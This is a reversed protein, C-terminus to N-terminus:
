SSNSLISKKVQAMRKDYFQKLKQEDDIEYVKQCGTAPYSINLKM